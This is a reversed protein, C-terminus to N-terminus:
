TEPYKRLFDAIQQQGREIAFAIADMDKMSEGTYKISPDAGHDLLLKVIEINGKYIASFLPNQEPESSDIKAGKSLLHQAIQLNGESVAENLASGNLVGGRANIDAGAEILQDIVDNKGAIVAVHLMPGFPTAANVIGPDINLLENIKNTDGLKVADYLEKTKKM